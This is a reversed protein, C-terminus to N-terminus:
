LQDSNDMELIEGTTMYIIRECINTVRDALRELNHAAWMLNNSIHIKEPDSIVLNTLESSVQNYLRDVEDDELPIQRASISDGAMLADLSRQLMSLGLDTMQVLREIIPSTGTIENIRLTIKGIGKAYDGIRELEIIIELISAIFRVDRGMPQQTAILNICDGELSYRKENIVQDGRIIQRALNHDQNRFAIMSQRIAQEVLSGLVLVQDSLNRMKNDFTERNNVSYM